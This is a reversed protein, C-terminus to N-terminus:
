NRIRQRGRPTAAPAAPKPPETTTEIGQLRIAYAEDHRLDAQLLARGEYRQAVEPFSRAFRELRTALEEEDGRGLELTAGDGLRARWSGRGSLELAALPKGLPEVLPALRRWTALMRSASGEPGRLTPLGEDEVDGPNAQFVEGFTNVLRDGDAGDWLAAPRHEQLLVELRNPWVRRVTAERVWPVSEFARRAADLDVTFFNGSLRPAANARITAISSRTVEGGIEIESIAFVPQRAAWAVLAALLLVAVGAAMSGSLANMVRVDGPLSATTNM